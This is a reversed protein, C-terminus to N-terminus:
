ARKPSFPRVEQRYINLAGLLANDKRLAVSVLTRAGGLDVYARRATV